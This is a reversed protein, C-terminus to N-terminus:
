QKETCMRLAGGRGREHSAIKCQGRKKTKKINKRKENKKKKLHKLFSTKETVLIRVRLGGDIHLRDIRSSRCSTRTWLSFREYFSFMFHLKNALIIMWGPM